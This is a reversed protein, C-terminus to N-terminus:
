IKLPKKRPPTYKTSRLELRLTPSSDSPRRAAALRSFFRENCRSFHRLQTAISGLTHRVSSGLGRRLLVFARCSSYVPSFDSWFSCTGESCSWAAGCHVLYVLFIPFTPHLPRSQLGIANGVRSKLAQMDGSLANLRVSACATDAGTSNPTALSEVFLPPLLSIRPTQSRFLMKLVRNLETRTPLPPAVSINGLATPISVGSFTFVMLSCITDCLKRGTIVKILDGVSICLGERDRCDTCCWLGGLVSQTCDEESSILNACHCNLLM